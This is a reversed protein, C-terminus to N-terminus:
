FATFISLFFFCFFFEWGGLGSLCDLLWFVFLYVVLFFALLLSCSVQIGLRSFQVHVRINKHLINGFRSFIKSTLILLQEKRYLEIGTYGTRVDREFEEMQDPGVCSVQGAVFLLICVLEENGNEVNKVMVRATLGRCDSLWAVTATDHVLGEITSQLRIYLALCALSYHEHMYVHIYM